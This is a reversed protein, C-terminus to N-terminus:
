EIYDCGSVCECLGSDICGLTLSCPAQFGDIFCTCGLPYTCALATAAEIVIEKQEESARETFTWQSNDPPIMRDISPPQETAKACGAVVSLMFIVGLVTVSSVKLRLYKTNVLTRPM